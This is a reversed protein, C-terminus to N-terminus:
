NCLNDIKNRLQSGRVERKKWIFPAPSRNSDDVYARIHEALQETSNFSAGNLSKRTFIGFWVEVLNLWSASTPTYHFTVSKNRSLWEDNKKHTCYNDMIVHLERDPGYEKVLEDMYALFDIRTKTETTKAIVIGSAVELAAFMNLTGHRKYTSQYGRMVKGNETKVFGTKRELAQMSPKEDICLVIANIPPNLYLGVVDAAKVAFDKDTSICWSRQRNLHVGEKKLIRWIIDESSKLERALLKADWRSYGKPPSEGIMTLVRHKFDESYVKNRGSRPKDKLGNLGTALYSKRWSIVKNPYTKLERAIESPQRGKSSETVMYAREYNSRQVTRRTLWQGLIVKDSEPITFPASKRAM